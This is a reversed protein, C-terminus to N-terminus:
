VPFGIGFMLFGIGTGFTGEPMEVDFKREGGTAASESDDLPHSNQDLASIRVWPAFSLLNRELRVNIERRLRSWATM